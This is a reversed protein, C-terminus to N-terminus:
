CHLSYSAPESSKRTQSIEGENFRRWFLSQWIWNSRRCDKGGTSQKHWWTNGIMNYGLRDTIWGTYPNYLQEIHTWMLVWGPSCRLKYLHLRNLMTNLTHTEDVLLTQNDFAHGLYENGLQIWHICFKTFIHLFPKSMKAFIYYIYPKQKDLRDLEIWM